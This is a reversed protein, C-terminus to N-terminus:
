DRDAWARAAVGLLCVLQRAQLFYMVSFLVILSFIVPLSPGAWINWLTAALLLVIVQPRPHGELYVTKSAPDFTIGANMMRLYSPYGVKDIVALQFDGAEKLAVDGAMSAPLHEEILSISPPGARTTTVKQKCRFVAIGRNCAWKPSSMLIASEVGWAFLFLAIAILEYQTLSSFMGVNGNNAERFHLCFLGQGKLEPAKDM